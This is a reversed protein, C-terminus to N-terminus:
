RKGREVDAAAKEIAAQVLDFGLAQAMTLAAIAIDTLEAKAKEKDITAKHWIDHEDFAERCERGANASASVWWPIVYGYRVTDALEAAEEIIKPVQRAAMEEDSWGDQYGRAAVNAAVRQQAFTSADDDAIVGTIRQGCEDCRWFGEADQKHDAPENCAFCWLNM